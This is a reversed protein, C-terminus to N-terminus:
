PILFGEYHLKHDRKVESTLKEIPDEVNIDM